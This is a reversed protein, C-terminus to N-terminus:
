FKSHGGSFWFFVILVDSIHWVLQAKWEQFFLNLYFVSELYANVSSRTSVWDEQKVEITSLM